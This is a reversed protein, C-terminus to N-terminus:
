LAETTADRQAAAAAAKAVPRNSASIAALGRSRSVSAAAPRSRSSGRSRCRGSERKSEHEAVGLWRCVPEAAAEDCWEGRLERRPAGGAEDCREADTGIFSM